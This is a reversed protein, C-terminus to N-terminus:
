DIGQPLALRSASRRSSPSHWCHPIEFNHGADKISCRVCGDPQIRTTYRGDHDLRVFIVQM